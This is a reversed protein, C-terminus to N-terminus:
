SIKYCPHFNRSFQRMEHPNPPSKSVRSDGIGAFNCTHAWTLVASRGLVKIFIHSLSPITSRFAQELRNQFGQFRALLKLLGLCLYEFNDDLLQSLSLKMSEVTLINKMNVVSM